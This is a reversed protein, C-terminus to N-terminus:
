VTVRGEPLTDTDTLENVIVGVMGFMILNIKGDALVAIGPNDTVPGPSATIIFAM